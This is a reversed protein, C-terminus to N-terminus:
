ELEFEHLVITPDDSVTEFLFAMKARPEQTPRCRVTLVPSEDVISKNQCPTGEQHWGACQGARYLMLQFCNPFISRYAEPLFRRISFFM